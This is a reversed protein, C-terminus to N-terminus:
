QNFLHILNMKKIKLVIQIMATQLWEQNEKIKNNLINIEEENLKEKIKDNSIANQTQFLLNEFENKTEIFEQHKMDEDKNQEAEKVMREIDEASLRGKDNTITINKKNGSTKDQAEINMIGNADIDFTVEIQPVGRPAPPIGNLEFNGLSNNDKTMTREGEFVQITVAPQNDQYTSFTQSKKTPITTNREIIKTMVGGATEIGLSLPAVDLLLIEDAREEGSTSKSLIAAQVSAGYAVAEDPNISKSLEKGNFFSKLLEQIKPVRTSGGVLVIDDINSKSVGADKLVKQVPDMCKQFLPMCLM